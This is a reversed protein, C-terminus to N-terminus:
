IKILNREIYREIEMYSLFYLLDSYLEKNHISITMSLFSNNNEDKINSFVMTIYDKWQHDNEGKKHLNLNASKVLSSKSELAANLIGTNASMITLSDKSIKQNRDFMVFKEFTNSDKHLIRFHIRIDYKQCDFLFQGTALSLTYLYNKFTDENDNNISEVNQKLFTEAEKDIYCLYKSTIDIFSKFKDYYQVDILNHNIPIKINNVKNEKINNEIEEKQKNISAKYEKLNDSDENPFFSGSLIKYPEILFQALTVKSSPNSKNHHKYLLRIFIFTLITTSFFFFIVFLLFIFDGEFFLPFYSKFVMAETFMMAILGMNFLNKVWGKDNKIFTFTYFFAQMLGAVLALIIVITENLYSSRIKPNSEIM